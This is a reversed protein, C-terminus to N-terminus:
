IRIWDLRASPYRVVPDPNAVSAYKSYRANGRVLATILLVIYINLHVSTLLHCVTVQVTEVIFGVLMIHRCLMICCSTHM